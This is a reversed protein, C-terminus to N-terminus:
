PNGTTGYTGSTGCPTKQDRVLLSSDGYSLFRYDHSLAYDYIQKWVDGVFASVLLLLTSQPQHFNTILKDVVKFEYGPAIMIQTRAQFVPLSMLDMYKLLAELSEKLSINIQRNYPEWQNIEWPEPGLDSAQFARLGFWYLSELTRLTTTGVSVVSGSHCLLQELFTRTVSFSESHMQHDRFDKSKVPRFTGAGVHLTIRASSIGKARLRDLVMPTFHLGATPAAVSGRFRSYVTQYRENDIPESKRNLYPPIPTNGLRDLLEAFSEQTNWQFRIQQWTPHNAVLTARLVAKDPTERHVPQIQSIEAPDLHERSESTNTLIQELDGRKWKKLNGVLCKWVVSGTQQFSQQYDAPELPELCFIEIRAGGSKHFILRAPIVKTDNFVLLDSADLYQHLDRFCGTTIDHGDYLLMKSADREALPYKAIKDDPLDYHYTQVSGTHM